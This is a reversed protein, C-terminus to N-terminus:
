NDRSASYSNVSVNHYTQNLFFFTMKTHINKGLTINIPHSYLACFTKWQHLLMGHTCDDHGFAM